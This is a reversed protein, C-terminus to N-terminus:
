LFNEKIHTDFVTQIEVVQLRLSHLTHHTCIDIGLALHVLEHLVGDDAIGKMTTRKWDLISLILLLGHLCQLWEGRDFREIPSEGEQWQTFSFQAGTNPANYEM